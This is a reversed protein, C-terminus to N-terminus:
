KTKVSVVFYLLNYTLCVRNEPTVAGYGWQLPASGRGSGLGKSVIKNL